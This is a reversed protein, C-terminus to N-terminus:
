PGVQCRTQTVTAFRSAGHADSGVYHCRQPPPILPGAMRVVAVPAVTTAKERV